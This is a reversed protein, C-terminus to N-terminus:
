SASIPNSLQNTPMPSMIYATYSTILSTIIPYKKSRGNLNVFFHPRLNGQISTENTGIINEKRRINVGGLTSAFSDGITIKPQSTKLVHRKSVM